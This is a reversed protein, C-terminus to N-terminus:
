EQNNDTGDARNNNSREFMNWLPFMNRIEDSTMFNSQAGTAQGNGGPRMFAEALAMLGNMDSTGMGGMNGGM